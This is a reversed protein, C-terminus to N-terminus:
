RGASDGSQFMVFGAASGLQVPGDLMSRWAGKVQRFTMIETREEPWEPFPRTRYHEYVIVYSTGPPGSVAGLIKREPEHPVPPQQPSRSTNRGYRAFATDTRLRKLSDVSPVLFVSDLMFRFYRDRQKSFDALRRGVMCTDLDKFTSPDLMRVQTRRFEELADPHALRLLTAWDGTSGAALVLAATREPSAPVPSTSQPVPSCSLLLFSLLALRRM